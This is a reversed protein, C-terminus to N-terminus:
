DTSAVAEHYDKAFKELGKQTLEHQIDYTDWPQDLSLNEYPIPKNATEFEFNGSPIPCNEEAWAKLIKAPVTVLDSEFAFCYLRQDLSRISAALVV